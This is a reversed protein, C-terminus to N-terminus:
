SQGIVKLLRECYESESNVMNDCYQKFSDCNSSSVIFPVVAISGGHGLLEGEMYREGDEIGNLDDNATQTDKNGGEQEDNVGRQEEETMPCVFVGREAKTLHLYSIMQYRDERSVSFHEKGDEMSFARKYKADLVINWHQGEEDKPDLLFDPYIPKRLSTDRTYIHIPNDRSKNRPHRLTLKKIEDCEEMVKNLYEEWLWAGDFVVGALQDIGTGHSIKEHRLIQLSIRQLLSYESFYPHRVPRLNQGIVKVRQQRVYTPTAAIVQEVADKVDKDVASLIERYPGSKIFEIAHRVLQLLPNDVTHERTSYAVCGRFPVNIRLHRAMDIAGKIKADNYEWRRYAKFLGKALANKLTLPFLFICLEDIPDVDNHTPLNLVHAGLVRLLLYRMFYPKTEEIDTEKSDIKKSDFRSGISVDIGDVGFAGMLNGTEILFGDDARSYSLDFLNAKEVDDVDVYASWDQPFILLGPNDAQLDKISRGAYKDLTDKLYKCARKKEEDSSASYVFRSLPQRQGYKMNDTVRISYGVGM